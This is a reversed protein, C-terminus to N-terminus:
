GSGAVASAEPEAGEAKKTPPKCPAPQGGQLKKYKTAPYKTAAEHLAKSLMKKTIIEPLLKNSGDPHYVVYIPIASRGLKNMWEQIEDDENTFDAKMPLIKTKTFDARIEATEIILKENAKCNACWDATYDMFVPRGRALEAKVRKSSFPAWVIKDNVVVPAVKAGEPKIEAVPQPKAARSLDIMFYGALVTLGVSGTFVLRRRLKSHEFGGFHHLAWLAMSLVLLFGLFWLFGDKSIQAQLTGLLWVAAALLTFGMLHKFTEMWPGPKPLRKGIAPVFSILLFPFALGLGIFTFMLLTQWWTAGSGLAYTAAAGLFPASCPTSMISAVIGNVFSAWYGEGADVDDMGITLEFVGLANLGFAVMLGVMIAVFAPNQFQQGWQLNKALVLRLAIIIAAFAWFMVMIGATYALGHKRNISADEKAKEIVHFVKMTLVPLVCPMVNLIVGGIFAAGTYYLVNQSM